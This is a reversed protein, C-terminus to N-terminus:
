LELLNSNKNKKITGYDEYVFYFHYIYNYFLTNLPISTTM